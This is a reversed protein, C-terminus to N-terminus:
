DTNEVCQDTIELLCYAIEALQYAIELLFGSSCVELNSIATKIKPSV